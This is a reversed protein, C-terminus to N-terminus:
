RCYCTRHSIHSDDGPPCLGYGRALLNAPELRKQMAQWAAPDGQLRSGRRLTETLPASFDAVMDSSGFAPWLASLESGLHYLPTVSRGRGPVRCGDEAREGPGCAAIGPAWAALCLRDPTELLDVVGPHLHYVLSTRGSDDFRRAATWTAHTQGADPNQYLRQFLVTKLLALPEAEAELHSDKFTGSGGTRTAAIKDRPIELSPGMRIEPPVILGAAGEPHLLDFAIRWGVPGEFGPWHIPAESYNEIQVAGALQSGLYHAWLLKGAAAFYALLPVALVIWVPIAKLLSRGVVWWWLAGLGLFAAGGGLLSPVLDQSFGEKAFPLLGLLGLGSIVVIAICFLVRGFTKM